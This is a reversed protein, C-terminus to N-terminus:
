RQWEVIIPQELWPLMIMSLGWPLDDLLIDMASGEVRVIYMGDEHEISGPRQLFGLCLAGISSKSLSAWYSIVSNLLSDIEKEDHESAKWATPVAYAVPLGCLVKELTLCHEYHEGEFGTLHRLLHVAHIRTEPSVFKGKEDVLKMNQLFRNIFPHILVLGADSILLRKGFSEAEEEEADWVNSFDQGGHVSELRRDDYQTLKHTRDRGNGTNDNMSMIEPYLRITKDPNGSGRNDEIDFEKREEPRKYVESGSSKGFAIYAESGKSDEPRMNAERGKSDEGENNTVSESGAHTSAKPIVASVNEVETDKHNQHGSTEGMRHDPESSFVDVVLKDDDSKDQKENPNATVPVESSNDELFDQKNEALAADEEAKRVNDIANKGIHDSLYSNWLASRMLLKSSGSARTSIIARVAAIVEMLVARDTEVENISGSTDVADALSSKADKYSADDIASVSANKSYDLFRDTMFTLRAEAIAGLRSLQTDDLISFRSVIGKRGLKKLLNGAANIVIDAPNFNDAADWPLKPESLYELLKEWIGPSSDAILSPWETKSCGVSFIDDDPLFGLIDKGGLRDLRDRLESELVRPLDEESVRGLDIEMSDIDIGMRSYDKEVRELVRIIKEDTITDVKARAQEAELGSRIKLELKLAGIVSDESM